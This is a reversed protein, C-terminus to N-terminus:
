PLERTEHHVKLRFREELLSQVMLWTEQTPIARTDREVKAEIDFRDTAIWSPGGIVQQRLLQGDPPRYAYQILLILPVNEAIFRNNWSGTRGPNGGTTNPKASIVDFSPKRLLPTQSLLPITSAAVVGILTLFTKGM